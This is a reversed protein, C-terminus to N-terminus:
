RNVDVVVRGQVEGALISECLPVIGSLPEIRMIKDLRDPLMDLAFRKWAALRAEVPAMVSDIGFLTVGRLIFPLVTTNLATGGALGYSAVCGGYQMTSLVYALTDGGVGDVAGAWRGSAMPREPSPLRGIVESAGLEKLYDALHTRGTAAVVNFGWSALIAVAVSGTGGSAGTVLVDGKDPTLAGHEELTRVALMSTLGATGVAMAHQPSVGDPLPLLWGAPVRAYQAYGGWHKEGVGWGTLVVQDGANYDDSDCHEVTGVFDIGPVMPYQRVVKGENLVALADKYNLSSYQVRVLVDGAPLSDMPLSEQGASVTKDDQQRLVLADFTGDPM